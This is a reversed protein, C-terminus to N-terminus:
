NAMDTRPPRAAATVARVLVLGLGHWRLSGFGVDSLLATARRATRVRGRRGVLLTPLLWNSFQDALVFHGGKDLVRACETLGARQDAWHDFSTTSVVLDFAGDPFPLHEAVGVQFRLRRDEPANRRAVDVMNPAPDVGELRSAQPLRAALRQLLFGTGCGVDLARRAEPALALAIEVTRDAIQHHLRGLWGNDYGAAREDFAQADRDPAV